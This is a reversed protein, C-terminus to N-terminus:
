QSFITTLASRNRLLGFVRRPLPDTSASWLVKMCRLHHCAAALQFPTLNDFNSITLPLKSIKLLILLIDEHDEEAAWHLPTNGDGDQCDVDAGHAVLYTVINANGSQCAWHLPTEGYENKANVDANAHEVLLHVATPTDNLCALHILTSYSNTRHDWSERHKLLKGLSLKESIIASQLPNMHPEMHPEMYFHGEAEGLMRKGRLSLSLSVGTHINDYGILHRTSQSQTTNQSTFKRPHPINGYFTLKKVKNTVHYNASVDFFMRRVLDVPVAESIPREHTRSNNTPFKGSGRVFLGWGPPTTGNTAANERKECSRITNLM